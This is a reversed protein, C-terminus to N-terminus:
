CPLVDKAATHACQSSARLKELHKGTNVLVSRTRRNVDTSTILRHAAAESLFAAAACAVLACVLAVLM